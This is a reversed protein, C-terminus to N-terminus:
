GGASGLLAILLLMLAMSGLLVGALYAWHGGVHVAALHEDWVQEQSIDTERKKAM